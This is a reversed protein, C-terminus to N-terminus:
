RSVPCTRGRARGEPPTGGISRHSGRLVRGNAQRIMFYRVNNVTFYGFAGPLFMLVSKADVTAKDPGSFATIGCALLLKLSESFFTVSLSSYLIEGDVEASRMCLGTSAILVATFGILAIKLFVSRDAGRSAGGGGGRDSRAPSSCGGAEGDRDCEDVLGVEEMEDLDDCEDSDMTGKRERM